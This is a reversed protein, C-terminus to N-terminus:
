CRRWPQRTIRRGRSHGYLSAWHLATEEGEGRTDTAVGSKILTEIMAADGKMAVDFISGEPNTM